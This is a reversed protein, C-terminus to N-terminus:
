VGGGDFPGYKGAERAGGEPPTNPTLVTDVEGPYPGVTACDDAHRTDGVAGPQM